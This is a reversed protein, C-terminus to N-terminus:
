ARTTYDRRQNMNLDILHGASHTLLHRKYYAAHDPSCETWTVINNNNAQDNTFQKIVTVGTKKIM